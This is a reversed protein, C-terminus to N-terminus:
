LSVNNTRCHPRTVLVRSHSMHVAVEARGSLHGEPRDGAKYLGIPDDSLWPPQPGAASSCHWMHATNKSHSHQQTSRPVECPNKRTHKM